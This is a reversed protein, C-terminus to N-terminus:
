RKLKYVLVKYEPRKDWKLILELEDPVNREDILFSLEPYLRSTWRKDLVLYDIKNFKAYKLLDSYQVNPLLVFNKNAYYSVEPCRSSILSDKDLNERIWLGTEKLEIAYEEFLDEQFFPGLLRPCFSALIILLSLFSVLWNKLTFKQNFWEGIGEIGNSVWLFLLPFFYVIRKPEMWPYLSYMTFILSIFVITLIEFKMILPKNASNFLGLGLFLILIPQFIRPFDQSYIRYYLDRLYSKIIRPFNLKLYKLVKGKYITELELYNLKNFDTTDIGYKAYSEPSVAQTRNNLFVDLAYYISNSHLLRIDKKATVKYLCVQYIGFLLLFGLMFCIVSKIKKNLALNNVFCFNVLITTLCILFIFSAEVRIYYALGLIVGSALFLSKKMKKISLWLLFFVLILFFVYTSDSMAQASFLVLNPEFAVLLSAMIGVKSNFVDRGILFILIVLLSGFLVSILRAAFEWDSIWLHAFKILLPYGIQNNGLGYISLSSLNKALNIYRTGDTEIVPLTQLYSLRVSLAVFFIIIVLFIEKYKM